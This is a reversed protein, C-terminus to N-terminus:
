RAAREETVWDRYVSVVEEIRARAPQRRVSTYGVVAGNRVNPVVTAYVWYYAGDKRLNKVYGYWTEGAHITQWLDAFVRKPMDTNRLVYHSAGILEDRSYGSLEVFANNAHTIVGHLDTRSVILLGEPYPVEWDSYYVKRASGNAYTMLVEKCPLYQDPINMPQM